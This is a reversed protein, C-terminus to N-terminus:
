ADLSAHDKGLADTESLESLSSLASSRRTGTAGSKKNRVGRQMPLEVEINAHQNTQLKKSALRALSGIVSGRHQHTGGRVGLTSTSAPNQQDLTSGGDRVIEHTTPMFWSVSLMSLIATATNALAVGLYYLQPLDDWETAVLWCAMTAQTLEMLAKLRGFSRYGRGRLAIGSTFAIHIVECMALVQFRIDLDTLSALPGFGIKCYDISNLLLLAGCAHHLM